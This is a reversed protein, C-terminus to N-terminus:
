CSLHVIVVSLFLNVEPEKVKSFFLTSNIILGKVNIKGKVSLIPGDCRYGLGSAHLRLCLLVRLGVTGGEM